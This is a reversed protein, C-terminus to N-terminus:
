VFALGTPRRRGANALLIKNYQSDGAVSVGLEFQWSQRMQSRRWGPPGIGANGFVRCLNRAARKSSLQGFINHAVLWDIM